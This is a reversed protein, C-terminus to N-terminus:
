RAFTLIRDSVQTAEIWDGLGAIEFHSDLTVADLEYRKAEGADVVGKKLASAICVTLAVDHQDRLERWGAPLQAADQPPVATSLANYVGDHYFFVRFIRHGRAIAARCFQEATYPAQHGLPASMVLLSYTLSSM